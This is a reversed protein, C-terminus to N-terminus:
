RARQPRGRRGEDLQEAEFLVGRALLQAVLRNLTANQMGTAAALAKRTTAQARDILDLVQIEKARSPAM